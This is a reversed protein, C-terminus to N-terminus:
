QQDAYEADAERDGFACHTVPGADEQAVFGSSWRGHEAVSVGGEGRQQRGTAEHAVRQALAQAHHCQAPEKTEIARQPARTIETAVLKQIPAMANPIIPSPMETAKGIATVATVAIGPVGAPM